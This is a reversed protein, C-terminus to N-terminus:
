KKTRRKRRTELLMRRVLEEVSTNKLDIDDLIYADELVDQIVNINISRTRRKPKKTIPVDLPEIEEEKIDKSAEKTDSKYTDASPKSVIGENPDKEFSLKLLGFIDDIADLKFSYNFEYEPGSTPKATFFIKDNKVRVTVSLDENNGTNITLIKGPVVDVKFAKPYEKLFKNTKVKLDNIFSIKEASPMDKVEKFEYINYDNFNVLKKM